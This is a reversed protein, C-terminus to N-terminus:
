PLAGPPGDVDAFRRHCLRGAQDQQLRRVGPGEPAKREAHLHRGDADFGTSFAGGSALIKGEGTIAVDHAEQAVIYARDSGEAIVSVSNGAYLAYDPVFELTAGPGISLTIGSFLRIPGTIHRGAQLLLTGGGASVLRDISQQLDAGNPEVSIDM